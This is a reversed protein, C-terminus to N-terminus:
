LRLGTCMALMSALKRRDDNWEVSFVAQVLEPTLIQREKYTGSFFVLGATVDKDLLENNYAWKLAVEIAENYDTKGTSQWPM